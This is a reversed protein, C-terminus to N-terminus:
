PGYDFEVRCFERGADSLVLRNKGAGAEILGMTVLRLFTTVDSSREGGIYMRGYRDIITLGLPDRWMMGLAKCQPDTIDDDTLKEM